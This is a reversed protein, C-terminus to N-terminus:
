AQYFEEIAKFVDVVDNDETYPEAFLGMPTKASVDLSKASKNVQFVYKPLRTTPDQIVATYLVFTFNAEIGGGKLSGQIKAFTKTVMEKEDYTSQDHALFIYHKNSAKAMAIVKNIYAKYNQWASMGNSANEVQETYFLDGLFTLTDIVIYEVNDDEEAADMGNILQQTNELKVHKYLNNARFPLMKNDVNIYITKDLPLNRLSTTKGSGTSGVIMITKDVRQSM